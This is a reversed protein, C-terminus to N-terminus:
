ALKELLHPRSCWEAKTEEVGRWDAYSQLQRLYWDDNRYGGDVCEDCMCIHDEDPHMAMGEAKIRALGFEPKM